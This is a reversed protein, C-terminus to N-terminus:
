TYHIPRLNYTGRRWPTRDRHDGSEVPGRRVVAEVQPGAAM